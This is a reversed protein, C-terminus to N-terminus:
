GALAQRLARETFVKALHTKYEVSGYLDEIVTIGDTVLAAADTIAEDNGDTGILASAAAEALSPRTGVGTVGIRADSVSGDTVQVWVAVGAVAYDTHGGRRGLKDYASTSGNTSTPVRLEVLIEDDSLASTLADVFFEQAPIEREGSSSRAVMTAGLAIAAAPQDAAIDAHAMAGCTTGRNRVQHDGTWAAAQGLATAHEAVLPDSATQNHRVLAGISIHDDREVIDGLGDIRGIDVVTGPSFLRLKMLPILSQGGSMIKAGPTSALASLADDLSTPALYEFQRSFM